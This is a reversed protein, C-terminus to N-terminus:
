PWEVQSIGAIGITGHHEENCCPFPHTDFDISLLKALPRTFPCLPPAGGVRPPPPASPIRNRNTPTHSKHALSACNICGRQYSSCALARWPFTRTNNRLAWLSRKTSAPTAPRTTPTGTKLMALIADCWCEALRMLAAATHIVKQYLRSPFIYGLCSTSGHRQKRNQTLREQRARKM